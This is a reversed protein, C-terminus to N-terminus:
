WRDSSAICFALRMRRVLRLKLRIQNILWLTLTKFTTRLYKNDSYIIACVNIFTTEFFIEHTMNMLYYDHRIKRIRRHNVIINKQVDCTRMDDFNKRIYLCYTNKRSEDDKTRISRECVFYENTFQEFQTFHQDFIHNNCFREIYICIRKITTQRISLSEITNIKSSTWLNNDVVYKKLRISRLFDKQEFYSKYKKQIKQYNWIKKWFHLLLSSFIMILSRSNNWIITSIFIIFENWVNLYNSFSILFFTKKM